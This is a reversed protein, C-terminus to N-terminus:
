IGARCNAMQSAQALTMLRGSGTEVRRHFAFSEELSVCSTRTCLFSRRPHSRTCPVCETLLKEGTQAEQPKGQVLTSITPFNLKPPSSRGTRQGDEM